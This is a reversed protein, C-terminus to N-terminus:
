ETEIEDPVTTTPMEWRSIDESEQRSGTIAFLIKYLRVNAGITVWRM